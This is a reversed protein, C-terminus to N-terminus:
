ETCNCPRKYSKMSKLMQTYELEEEPMDKRSCAVFTNQHASKQQTQLKNVLLIAKARPTPSDKSRARELQVTYNLVVLNTLKRM